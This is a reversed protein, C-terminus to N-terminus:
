KPLCRYLFSLLAKMMIVVKSASAVASSSNNFAVLCIDNRHGTLRLVETPLPHNPFATRAASSSSADANQSPPSSSNNWHWLFSSCDTGGAV